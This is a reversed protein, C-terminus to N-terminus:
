DVFHILLKIQYCIEKLLDIHVSDLPQPGNAFHDVALHIVIHEILGHVIIQPNNVRLYQLLQPGNLQSVLIGEFEELLSVVFENSDGELLLDRFDEVVLVLLLQVM